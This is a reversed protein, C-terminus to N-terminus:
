YSKLVQYSPDSRDRAASEAQGLSQVERIASFDVVCDRKDIAWEGGRKSWLDVYRACFEREMLREGDVRACSPPSM